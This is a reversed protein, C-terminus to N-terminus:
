RTVPVSKKAKQSEFHLGGDRPLGTFRRTNNIGLWPDSPDYGFLDEYVWQNLRDVHRYHQILDLAAYRGRYENQVSDAALDERLCHRMTAELVTESGGKAYSWSLSSGAADDKHAQDAAHRTQLINNAEQSILQRSAPDLESFEPHLRGLHQWFDLYGAPTEGVADRRPEASEAVAKRYAALDIAWNKELSKRQESRYKALLQEAEQPTAKLAGRAALEAALARELFLKPGYLGPFVDVVTQDPLLVYHVSNGSIPQKVTRGNGLDITLTPVPCVSEWHLIFKDHLLARVQAHPYLLTRFYRSNACSLEENLNGLLRLTLIPKGQRKAEQMAVAADTYWFLGSVHAYKAGAVADIADEWSRLRERLTQQEKEDNSKLAAARLPAIQLMLRDVAAPGETRWAEIQQTTPADDALVVNVAGILGVVALWGMRSHM